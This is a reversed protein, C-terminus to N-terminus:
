KAWIGFCLHGVLWIVLVILLFTVFYHLVTWHFINQQPFVRMRVWIWASLTWEPHKKVLAATEPVLFPVLIWFAAGILWWKWYTAFFASWDTTTKM